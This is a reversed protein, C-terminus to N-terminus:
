EYRELNVGTLVASDGEQELDVGLDHIKMELDRINSKDKKWLLLNDVYVICIVKDGIFLWPVLNYQIM